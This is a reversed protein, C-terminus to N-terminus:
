DNEDDEKKDIQTKVSEIRKALWEPVPSFEGVNEIISILENMCYWITVILGFLLNNSVEIGIHQASYTIIFDFCMGCCIILLYGLKKAIGKVGKESNLAGDKWASVMGSVYDLVMLIALIIVAPVIAKFEALIWGGMLTIIIEAFNIEIFSCLKQIIKEM